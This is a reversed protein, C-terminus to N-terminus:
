EVFWAYEVFRESPDFTDYITGYKICCIHGKMTCLMINNPYEIALEGVTKPLFTVREYNSDLYWLVFDRQDFLTGNYQALDSLEAYVEDWSRQTACSVSRIVCDSTFRGLANANYFKYM